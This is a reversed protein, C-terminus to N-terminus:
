WPGIGERGPLLRLVGPDVFGEVLEVLTPEVVVLTRSQIVPLWAALGQPGLICLAAGAELARRFRADNVQGHAQPIVIAVQWLDTDSSWDWEAVHIEPRSEGEFSLEGSVVRTQVGYELVRVNPLESVIAKLAIAQEASHPALVLHGCRNMAVVRLEANSMPGTLWVLSDATSRSGAAISAFESPLRIVSSDPSMTVSATSRIEHDHAGLFFGPVVTYETQDGFTPDEAEKTKWYRISSLRSRPENTSLLLTSALMRSRAESDSSADVIMLRRSVWRSTLHSQVIQLLPNSQGDWNGYLVFKQCDVYPSTDFVWLKPSMLYEDIVEGRSVGSISMALYSSDILPHPSRGEARGHVHYHLWPSVGASAVDPNAGDYYQSSFLPHWDVQRALVGDAANSLLSRAGLPSTDAAPADLLFGEPFESLRSANLIRFLADVRVEPYSTTLERRLSRLCDMERDHSRQASRAVLDGVLRVAANSIRM